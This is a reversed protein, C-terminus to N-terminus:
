RNLAPAATTTFRGNFHQPCISHAEHVALKAIEGRSLGSAKVEVKFLNKSHREAHRWARNGSVGATRSQCYTNAFSFVHLPAAQAAIPAAAIFAAALLSLKM